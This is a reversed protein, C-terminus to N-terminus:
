VYDHHFIIAPTSCRPCIVAYVNLLFYTLLFYYILEFVTFWDTKTGYVEIPVVFKDKSKFFWSIHLAKIQSSGVNDARFFNQQLGFLVIYIIYCFWM